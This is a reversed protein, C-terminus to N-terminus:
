RGDSKNTLCVAARSWVGGSNMQWVSLVQSLILYVISTCIDHRGGQNFVFEHRLEILQRVVQLLADEVKCLRERGFSYLPSAKEAKLTENGGVFYTAHRLGDVVRALFDIDMSFFELSDRPQDPPLVHGGGYKRYLVDLGLERAKNYFWEATVVRDTDKEGVTIFDARM